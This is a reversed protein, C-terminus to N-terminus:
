NLPITVTGLDTIDNQTQITKNTIPNATGVAAMSSNFADVSITYTGAPLVDTVGYHDSCKFIDSVSNSANGVQTSIAEVGTIDPNSACSTPAGGITLAWAMQFYGGDTYIDASFTKDSTTLDVYAYVTSAYVSSGDHNEIQIWSFYTSPALPATNAVFVSCDFLDVVSAGVTNYNSDIEQSYLAATDYGSPCNQAGERCEQHGM